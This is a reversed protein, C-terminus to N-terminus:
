GDSNNDLNFKNILAIFKATEKLLHQHALKVKAAVDEVATEFEPNTQKTEAVVTKILAVTEQLELYQDVLQESKIEPLQNFREIRAKLEKEAQSLNQDSLNSQHSDTM